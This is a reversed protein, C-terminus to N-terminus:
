KNNIINNVHDVSLSIAELLLLDTKVIAKCKEGRGSKGVFGNRVKKVLSDSCGVINATVVAPVIVGDAIVIKQCKENKNKM